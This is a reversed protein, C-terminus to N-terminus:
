RGHRSGGHGRNGHHDGHGSSAEILSVTGEPDNLFMYVGVVVVTAATDLVVTVPTGLMRLQYDKMKDMSSKAVLYGNGRSLAYSEYKVGRKQLAAETTKSADIWIRDKPNTDEWLKSTTCSQCIVLIGLLIVGLLSKM